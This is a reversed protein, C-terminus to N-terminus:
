KTVMLIEWRFRFCLCTECYRSTTKTGSLLMETASLPKMMSKIRASCCDLCTGVYMVRLTTESVKDSLTTPTKRGELVTWFSDKWQLHKQFYNIFYSWLVTKWNEILYSKANMIFKLYLNQMAVLQLVSDYMSM